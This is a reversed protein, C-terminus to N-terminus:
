KIVLSLIRRKWPFPFYREEGGGKRIERGREGREREMEREKERGREGEKERGRERGRERM